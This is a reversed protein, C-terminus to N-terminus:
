TPGIWGTLLPKMDGLPIVVQGEADLREDVEFTLHRPVLPPPKRWDLDYINAKTERRIYLLDGFGRTAVLGVRPLKRQLLANIGITTGNVCLGIPTGAPVTSLAERIAEIPARPNSVVKDAWLLGREPDAVVIDTHTGGVDIGVVAREATSSSNM